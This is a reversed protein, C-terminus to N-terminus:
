HDNSDIFEAVIRNFIAPKQAHLWHGTGEITKAQAKPFQALIATKHAATVYDSDGGRLFLTPGTYQQVANEWGIIQPYCSSLGPLNMKWGFGTDTRQLNKLLFQATAEDIGENLLHSLAQRRDTLGDLALSELAAFVTNHRPTYTVPAIDAAVLSIVRQPRQLAFALAVKGGFSHGVLHVRELALEDLLRELSQTLWDYNMEDWHPSLGHNPLDVRIVRHHPELAQGLSKLNDLNGFLGHILVVPTGQGASVHHM